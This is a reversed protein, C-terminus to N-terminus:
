RIKVLVEDSILVPSSNGSALMVKKRGKLVFEKYDAEPLKKKLSKLYLIRNENSTMGKLEDSEVKYKYGKYERYYAFDKNVTSQQATTPNPGYLEKAIDKKVQQPSKTAM